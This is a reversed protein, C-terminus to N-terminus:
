TDRLRVRPFFCPVRRIPARLWHLPFTSFNFTSLRFFAKNPATKSTRFRLWPRMRSRCGSCRSSGGTPCANAWIPRNQPHFWRIPPWGAAEMLRDYYEQRRTPRGDSLNLVNALPAEVLRVCAEVIDDRHVLNVFGAGDDRQAGAASKLRNAPGRGPGIIGALRLITATIGIRAAGNLLEGETQVLVQANESTPQTPSTEDVWSGDRQAYVSTSSTYLIHRVRAHQLAALVCRMGELYVSRYTAHPARPAVAILVADASKLFDRVRNPEGLQLVWPEIGLRALDESAEVRTTSGSVQLGGEVLRAGVARGVYGCGLIAIRQLSSSSTTSSM